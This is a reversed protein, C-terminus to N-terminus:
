TLPAALPPRLGEGEEAEGMVALPGSIAPEDHLVLRFPFAKRSLQRRQALIGPPEHV